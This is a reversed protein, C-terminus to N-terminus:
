VICLKGEKEGGCEEAGGALAAVVAERANLIQLGNLIQQLAQYQAALSPLTLVVKTLSPRVPKKFPNKGRQKKPSCECGGGGTPTGDGQSLVGVSQISQTLAASSPVPMEDVVEPEPGVQVPEEEHYGVSYALMM